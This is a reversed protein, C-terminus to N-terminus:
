MSYKFFWLVFTPNNNVYALSRTTKKNVSNPAGICHVAQVLRAAVFLKQSALVDDSILITSIKAM